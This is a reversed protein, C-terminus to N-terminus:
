LERGIIQFVHKAIRRVAAEAPTRRTFKIGSSLMEYADMPMRWDSAACNEASRRVTSCKAVTTVGQARIVWNLAIQAETKGFRNALTNLLKEPDSSLIRSFDSGLPSFAILTIRNKQCYQLMGQEVTRDILSYKV